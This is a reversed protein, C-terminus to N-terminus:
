QVVALRGVYLNKRARGIPDNRTKRGDINLDEAGWALSMHMRLMLENNAM